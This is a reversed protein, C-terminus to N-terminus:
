YGYLTRVEGTCSNKQTIEYVTRGSPDTTQPRRSITVWRCDTQPYSPQPRYPSRPDGSGSGSSGNSNSSGDRGGGSHPQWWDAHAARPAGCVSLALALAIAATGKM